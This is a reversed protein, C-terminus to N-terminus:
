RQQVFCAKTANSHLPYADLSHSTVRVEKEVGLELDSDLRYVIQGVLAMSSFVFVNSFACRVWPNLALIM